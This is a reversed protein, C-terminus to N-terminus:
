MYANVVANAVLLPILMYIGAMLSRYTIVLVIFITAFGLINVLIDNRLLAENAAALLGIPGGALRFQANQLPNAAVFDKLRKIVRRVNEGKHDTCYFRIPAARLKSDIFRNTDQYSNGSFYSALLLNVQGPTRPLVEWKPEQYNVTANVVQLIDVFSFSAGVSPDQEMYRQLKEIAQLVEPSAVSANKGKGEVVVMLEEVGGFTEQIRNYAVNYPADRRLLPTAATPDGIVLDKWFYVSGALVVLWAV